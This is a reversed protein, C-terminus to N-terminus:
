RVARQRGAQVHIVRGAIESEYRYLVVFENSNPVFVKPAYAYQGIDFPESSTGDGHLLSGKLVSASSWVVLVDSGNGAVAVIGPLPLPTLTWLMGARDAVLEFVDTELPMAALGVFHDGDTAVIPDHTPATKVSAAPGYTFAINKTVTPTQFTYTATTSCLGSCFWCFCPTNKLAVSVIGSEGRPSIAASVAPSIAEISETQLKDTLVLSEDGSILLYRGDRQGAAPANPTANVFQPSTLISRTDTALTAAWTSNASGPTQQKWVVLVSKGTTALTVFSVTTSPALPVAFPTDTEHLTADLHGINIRDRQSWAILYGDGQPLLAADGLVDIPASKVEPGVIPQAAVATAILISLLFTKTKV